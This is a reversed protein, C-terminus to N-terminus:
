GPTQEKFSARFIGIFFFRNDSVLISHAKITSTHSKEPYHLFFDVACEKRLRAFLVIFYLSPFVFARIQIM